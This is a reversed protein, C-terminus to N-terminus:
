EKAKWKEIGKLTTYGGMYLGIYGGSVALLTAVDVMTQLQETAGFLRLLLNLMPYIVVYLTWFLGFLYMGAPRWAWSWFPGADMEKMMLDHAQRQQINWQVILEPAEAEVAAVAKELDKQPLNQLDEPAVGAQGAIADIITGGIEGAAGGVHKQLISKVIPAGIKAAVSILIGALASM